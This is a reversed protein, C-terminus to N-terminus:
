NPTESSNTLIEHLGRALRDEELLINAKQSIIKDVQTDISNYLDFMKKGIDAISNDTYIASDHFYEKMPPNDSILIPTQVALSEYAGCVMCDSRWTLDISFLANAVLWNYDDEPIFGAFLIGNKSYKEPSETLRETKVKGTVILSYNPVLERFKFFARCANEIPEDEAWSSIFLIYSKENFNKYPTSSESLTPLPDPFVYPRGGMEELRKVLFRNTIIVLDCKRAIYTNLTKLKGDELACNHFDGIIRIDKKLAKLFVCILSLVISPNQFFIVDPKQNIIFLITKLSLAIYRTFRWGNYIFECYAASNKEAMSRNRTQREWTLWIKKM